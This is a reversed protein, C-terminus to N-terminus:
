SFSNVDPDDPLPRMAHKEKVLWFSDIVKDQDDSYQEWYIHTRNHIKMRSYGYDSSRFASWERVSNPFTDTNEQCGASGSVIHVPASPNVYPADLSANYVKHDYVPWMREYSHEHAWIEMDVGYYYFIKELGFGLGFDRLIPIGARVNSERQTCDDDDDDSCYMPRHGYTIIWPRVIRHEHEAAEKLDSRIWEYQQVLRIFDFYYAETDISIFHVPGMNWSYYMSQSDGPMSFRNRYHHFFNSGEHNGPCTMYPIYAAIPQILNMFKDGVTGNEWDFNYAFDGVHLIADYKKSMVDKTIAKVSQPNKLGLDGYVLLSPSWDEGDGPFTRFWFEESMQLDSGCKYTYTSNPSLNKLTVRHFYQQRHLSGYDSFLKSFGDARFTQNYIVFPTGVSKWTSWTVVMESADRGLALHIQQPEYPGIDELNIVPDLEVLKKCSVSLVATLLIFLLEM